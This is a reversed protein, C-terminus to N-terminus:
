AVACGCAGMRARACWLCYWVQKGLMWGMIMIVPREDEDGRLSALKAHLPHGSTVIAHTKSQKM